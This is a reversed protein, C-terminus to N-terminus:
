ARSEVQEVQEITAPRRLKQERFWIYIGSGIIVPAGVYFWVDPPEHFVLWSVIALPVLQAYTFPALLSPPALRHAM